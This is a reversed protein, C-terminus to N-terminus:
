GEKYELPKLREKLIKIAINIDRDISKLYELNDMHIRIPKSKMRGEWSGIGSVAQLLAREWVSLVRCVRGGCLV